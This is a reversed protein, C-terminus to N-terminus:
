KMLVACVLGEEVKGCEEETTKVWTKNKPIFYEAKRIRFGKILEGFTEKDYVKWGEGKKTAYDYIPINQKRLGYETTLFLLGGRKLLQKLKQMIEVDKEAHEITSVCTIMDFFGNPKADLVDGIQIKFNLTEAIEKFIPHMVNVLDIGYMDYGLAALQLPFIPFKGFGIDLIRGEERKMNHFIWSYEIFRTQGLNTVYWGDKLLYNLFFDRLQPLKTYFRKSQGPYVIKKESM